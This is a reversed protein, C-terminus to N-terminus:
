QLSAPQLDAYFEDAEAQRRAFIEDFSEFPADGPDEDPGAKTLRLRVSVSEGAGVDRKYIAAAKTGIQEPNVAEERRDIVFAHFADKVFPTASPSGYLRESNTENETFILTESGECALLYRGLTAHHAEM